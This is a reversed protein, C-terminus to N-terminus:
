RFSQQKLQGGRHWEIVYSLFETERVSSAENAGGFLPKPKRGALVSRLDFIRTM